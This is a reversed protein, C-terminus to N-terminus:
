VPILLNKHIEAILQITKAELEKEFFVKTALNSDAFIKWGSDLNVNQM